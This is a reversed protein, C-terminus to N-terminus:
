VPTWKLKSPIRESYDETYYISSITDSFTLKCTLVQPKLPMFFGAFGIFHGVSAVTDSGQEYGYVFAEINSASLWDYLEYLRATVLRGMGIWYCHGHYKIVTDVLDPAYLIM